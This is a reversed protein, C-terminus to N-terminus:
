TQMLMKIQKEMEMIENLNGTKRCNAYVFFFHTFSLEFRILMKLLMLIDTESLVKGSIYM